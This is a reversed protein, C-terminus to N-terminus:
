NRLVVQATIHRKDAKGPKKYVGFVGNIGILEGIYPTLDLGTVPTILCIIENRDNVIGYPPHGPPPNEFAGLKGFIDSNGVQQNRIADGESKEARFNATTMRNAPPLPAPAGSNGSYSIGTSLNPAPLPNLPPPLLADTKFQRRMTITQRVSRTRELSEVLHYVKEIEQPTRAQEILRNGHQILTAFVWDETPQMMALQTEHHLEQLAKEFQDVPKSNPLTIESRVAYAVKSADDITEAKTSTLEGNQEPRLKRQVPRIPPPSTPGASENDDYRTQLIHNSAASKRTLTSNINLSVPSLSSRPVWRFEGSPPAIKFWVPSAPNEPTEKQDLIRVKEGKKLRVQVTECESSLESGIRAALGDASVHGIESLNNGSPHQIVYSGSIWSFSGAPPRIACWDGKESMKESFVEVIEGCRLLSTEYFQFGPGSRAAVEPSIVSAFFAGNETVEATCVRTGIQAFILFGITFFSFITRM